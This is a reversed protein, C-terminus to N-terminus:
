TNNNKKKKLCFGAYSIRMLSQLESTHEESRRQAIMRPSRCVRSSTPSAVRTRRAAMRWIDIPRCQIVPDIAARLNRDISGTNRLSSFDPHGGLRRRRTFNCQVHAIDVLPLDSSCVDSSWDSIRLEYATKQKFFFFCLCM